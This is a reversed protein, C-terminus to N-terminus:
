KDMRIAVVITKAMDEVPTEEDFEFLEVKMEGFLSRQSVFPGPARDPTLTYRVRVHFKFGLLTPHVAVTLLEADPRLAHSLARELYKEQQAPITLVSHSTAM